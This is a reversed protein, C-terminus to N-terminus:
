SPSAAAQAKARKVLSAVTDSMQAGKALWADIAEMKLKVVAPDTNPDYTGLFELALGNRAKREDIAQVRYAARKKAGVRTLRIKVM